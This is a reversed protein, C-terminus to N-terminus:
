CCICLIILISGSFLVWELLQFNWKMTNSCIGRQSILMSSSPSRPILFRFATRRTCIQSTSTTVAETIEEM